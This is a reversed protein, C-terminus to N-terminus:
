KVKTGMNLIRGVDRARQELLESAEDLCEELKMPRVPLGLMLDFVDYCERYGQNLSGALGIVQNVGQKSARTAVAYPTKGHATQDDIAGEGTILVDAKRLKKNLEAIDMVLDAGSELSADCLGMLGFGLGGAAGAGQQESLDDDGVYDSVVDSWNEMGKEMAELQDSSAGKQPAYVHVSGRNGLLPNDVDCAVRIDISDLRSDVNFDDITAVDSLAANGTGVPEGAEDLVRYGLARAMGLGGDVTASGGIGMIVTGAGNEIAELLLQGTGFTSTSLPDYESESLLHLGSAASMEIVAIPDQDNHEPIWGWKAQVNKGLPGKVVTQRIEGEMAEVIAQVTGEGGDALPHLDINWGSVPSNSLGRQICEAVEISSLSGKFKDPAVIINKSTEM